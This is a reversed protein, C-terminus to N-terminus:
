LAAQNTQAEAASCGAVCVPFCFYSAHCLIYLLSLIGTFVFFYFLYTVSCTLLHCFAIVAM